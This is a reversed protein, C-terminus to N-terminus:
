VARAIARSLVQELDEPTFPKSIYDDMGAALCKDRDGQMAHATMAIVPMHVGRGHELRRIEGACQLGDMEPMQCDMLVADFGQQLAHEGILKLAEKGNNAVTVRHGRKELLRSVLRQNVCNDEVLLVHLRGGDPRRDAAADRKAEVAEAAGQQPVAPLQVTFYFSSGRGASSDVWLKGGMLTVLDKSISLGLGTGGFRRTTSGDAQAFPEFIRDIKHPAIGIGTDSVVFHLMLGPGAEAAAQAEVRLAVEGGQDTFKVANSLLNMLVQGLRLDDGLLTDPLQSSIDATFRLQKDRIRPMLVGIVRDICRRVSFAAPNLAFKGSELKSLDLVDNIVTLLTEASNRVVNVFEQQEASLTTESLLGTMGLIGNLPTRVEHSMNALFEGKARNSEEAAVRAAILEQEFKHSATVDVATLVAMLPSGNPERALSGSCSFVREWATGARRVRLQEQYVREGALIRRLPSLELPLAEGALTALEFTNEFDAFALEADRDDALGFIRRAAPNWHQVRGRTDAVILAQDLNELTTRLQAESKTLAATREAVLGELRDNMATVDDLNRKIGLFVFFGVGAALMTVLLVVALLVVQLTRSQQEAQARRHELRHENTLVLEAIVEEWQVPAHAHEAALRYAEEATGNLALRQVRRDLEIWDDYARRLAQVAPKDEPLALREYAALEDLLHRSGDQIRQIASQKGEATPQLICDRENVVMTRFLRRVHTIHLLRQMDEHVVAKLEADLGRLGRMGTVAIISSAAVLACM